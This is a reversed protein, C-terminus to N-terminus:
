HWPVTFVVFAQMDTRGLQLPRWAMDAARCGSGSYADCAPSIQTDGPGVVDTPDTTPKMIQLLAATSIHRMRADAWPENQTHSGMYIPERGYM